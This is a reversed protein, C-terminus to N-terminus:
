YDFTLFTTSKINVYNYTDKVLLLTSNYGIYSNVRILLLILDMLHLNIFVLKSFYDNIFVVM